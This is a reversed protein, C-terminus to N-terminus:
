ALEENYDGNLKQLQFFIPFGNNLSHLALKTPLKKSLADDERVGDGICNGRHVDQSEQSQQQCVWNFQSVIM